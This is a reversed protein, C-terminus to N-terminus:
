HHRPRKRGPQHQYWGPDEDYRDPLNERVLSRSRRPNHDMTSLNGFRIRVKEGLNAVLSRTGPFARANFTLVNFDTMENPDRRETGV